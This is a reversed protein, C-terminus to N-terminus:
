FPLLGYDHDFIAGRTTPGYFHLSGIGDGNFNISKALKSVALLSKVNYGGCGKLGEVKITSGHDCDSGESYKSCIFGNEIHCIGDPCLKEIDAVAKFFDKPIECPPSNISEVRDGISDPWANMYLQSKLWSGDEYWFTASNGGLGFGCLPHPAKIIAMMAKKPIAILPMDFPHWAEIIIDQNTAIVSFRKIYVSGCIVNKSRENPIKSILSMASTISNDLTHINKDPDVTPLVGKSQDYCEIEAVIDGSKVILLGRSVELHITDKCKSIVSNLTHTHPSCEIDFPIPSSMSLMGNSATIRGNRIISYSKYDGDVVSGGSNQCLTAMKCSEQLQVLNINKKNRPTKKGSM